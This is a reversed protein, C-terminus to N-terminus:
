PLQVIDGVPYLYVLTCLPLKSSTPPPADVSLDLLVGAREEPLLSDYRVGGGGGGSRVVYGYRGGM